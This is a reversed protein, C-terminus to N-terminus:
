HAGQARRHIHWIVTQQISETLSTTDQLELESGARQTAPVYCDPPRTPDASCAVVVERGPTFSRAVTQAVQAIALAEESGVNYPRCTEGRMLITWLWIALDAAYLYSRYPTGDGKVLIPGGEMGDRIFNGIAFKGDLPMYPGVFSFCRAIKAPIGYQKAYLACLTEATRKEEGRAGYPSETDVPDPAGLYDEPMREMEPPQRGYVAGSSTLLFGRAQCHRSFELARRTGSVNIDFVAL